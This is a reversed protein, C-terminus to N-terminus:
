ASTGHEAHDTPTRNAGGTGFGTLAKSIRSAAQVDKNCSFCHAFLAFAQPTAVPMDRLGALPTGSSGPFTVEESPM